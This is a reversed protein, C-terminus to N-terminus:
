VGCGQGGEDELGDEWGRVREVIGYFGLKGGCVM